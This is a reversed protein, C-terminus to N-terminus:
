RASERTAQKGMNRAPRGSCAPQELLWAQALRTAEARQAATVDPAIRAGDGLGNRDKMLTSTLLLTSGDVLTVPVNGTSYGMTPTGFSRSHPRGRLALVIAEGSSATRASQLLAVPADPRRLRRAADDPALRLADGVWVAGERYRWPQLGTADLFHGVVDPGDARGPLLPGVGLLMPWMNGGTNDGLDVIWGCRSGDDQRWLEDQLRHAHQREADRQRERPLAPDPLYPGVRILGLRADLPYTEPAGAAVAAQTTSSRAGRKRYGERMEEASMWGGHGATARNIADSLLRRQRDPDDTAALDRRLATWDVRDRHLARHELLGLMQERAPLSPVPTAAAPLALLVAALLISVTVSNRKGRM